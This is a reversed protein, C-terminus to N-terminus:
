IGKPKLEIAKPACTSVCLGCGYCREPDYHLSGDVVQRAGFPCRDACAGCDTCLTLDTAAIYDARAVLRTQKHRLLLQLDHCCCSCCSCLAYLAHDPRYLSLHVLGSEDAGKLVQAAEELGIPRALRKDIFKQAYENLVLCVSTPKGCRNYRTRCVCDTLAILGADAIIRTVQMTPLVWQRNPLSEGVPIVRSSYSIEGNELWNAYTKSRAALWDDMEQPHNTKVPKFEKVM